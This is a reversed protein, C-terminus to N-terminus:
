MEISGEMNNKKRTVYLDLVAENDIISEGEYREKAVMKKCEEWNEENKIVFTRKSDSTYYLPPSILKSNLRERLMEIFNKLTTNYSLDYHFRVKEYNILAPILINDYSVITTDLPDTAEIQLKRFMDDMVRLKDLDEQDSVIMSIKGAKAIEGESPDISLHVENYNIITRMPILWKSVKSALLLEILKDNRSYHEFGKIHIDLRSTDGITSINAMLNTFCISQTTPNLSIACPYHSIFSGITLKELHLTISQRDAEGDSNEDKNIDNLSESDMNVISVRAMVSSDSSGKDDRSMVNSSNRKRKPSQLNQSEFSIRTTMDDNNETIEVNQLTEQPLDFVPKYKPLVHGKGARYMDEQTKGNHVSEKPLDFIIPKFKQSTYTLKDFSNLSKNSSLACFMESKDMGYQKSNLSKCHEILYSEPTSSEDSPFYQDTLEDLSEITEEEYSVTEQEGYFQIINMMEVNEEIDDQNDMFFENDENFEFDGFIESLNDIEM